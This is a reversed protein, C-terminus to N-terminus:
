GSEAAIGNSATTLQRSVDQQVGERPPASVCQMNLLRFFIQKEQLCAQRYSSASLLPPAQATRKRQVQEHTRGLQTVCTFSALPCRDVAQEPRGSKPLRFSLCFPLIGNLHKVM